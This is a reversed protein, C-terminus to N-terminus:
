KDIERETNRTPSKTKKMALFQHSQHLTAALVFTKMGGLLSM